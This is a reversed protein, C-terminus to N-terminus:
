LSNRKAARIFPKNENRLPVDLVPMNGSLFLTESRERYNENRIM